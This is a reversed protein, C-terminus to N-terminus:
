DDFYESWGTTKFYDNYKQLAEELFEDENITIRANDVSHVFYRGDDNIAIKWTPFFIKEGNKDTTGNYYGLSVENVVDGDLLDSKLWLTELASEPSILPQQDGASEVNELMTQTLEVANNEENLHVVVTASENFYIPTGEFTQFFLLANHKENWGWYVYETNENMFFYNKLNDFNPTPQDEELNLELPENFMMRLTDGNAVTVSQNDPENLEKEEEDTFLHPTARIYSKEEVSPLDGEIDIQQQEWAKTTRQLVGPESTNTVYQFILFCDLLFFCVIFLTKIQSWQM